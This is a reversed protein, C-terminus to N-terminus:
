TKVASHRAYQCVGHQQPDRRTARTPCLGVKRHQETIISGWVDGGLVMARTSERDPLCIQRPIRRLLVRSPELSRALRPTAYVQPEASLALM